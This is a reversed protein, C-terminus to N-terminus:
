AMLQGLKHQAVFALLYRRMAQHHPLQLQADTRVLAFAAHRAEKLLEVDEVVNALRFEPLGSQKTGLFDGPGRLKLDIEAIRFGDTTEVLAQLRQRGNSTLNKPAMLICFSQEGGRGVRGRLQHLQSLGFRNANEIVMVSANPVDVGVEIVTTSVLVRTEGRKFRGMERDKDEPKMRGHVIGVQVGPFSRQMAFYGEEVAILDLKENEEVLPYVFYAQRGKALEEQVFGLVRLRTEETRIVTRIPKRGPPLEDIISVDIDGYTTMALTRPIPTATMALNHPFVGPTKQWLKSRQLVGFKHQEDIITLGLHQFKVTPEILAHTGVVLHTFGTALDRLVQDRKTKTQGGVLLDANLGLAECWHGMNRYHQEALIETPAMLAAQCGNDIALLMALFAVVTKGSGVDGQVLRNMQTPQGVDARIEKVVRKQAGTLQFPLVEKYFRNFHEGVTAFVPAKRLPQEALRRTALLLEFYFLEEFKIRRQAQGLSYFSDPFHIQRLAEALPLLEHQAILYPPLHEEVERLGADLLVRVLKRIGRSDLHANRLRETSHYTPLIRVTEPEGDERLKEVEPHAIRAHGKYWTPKGHVVIEDGVKFQQAIWKLGQFWQLEIFGSADAVTASLWKKRNRAHEQLEVIRGILSVERPGHETAEGTEIHAIAQVTSRDTYRFPLCYLLDHFTRLNLNNALLEARQPGVGKLFTLPQQWFAEGTPRATYPEV